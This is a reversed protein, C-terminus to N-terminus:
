SFKSSNQLMMQNMGTQPQMFSSMQMALSSLQSNGFQQQQMYAAPNMYQQQNQQQGSLTTIKGSSSALSSPVAVPGTGYIQNRSEQFLTNAQQYHPNHHSQQVMPGTRYSLKVVRENSSKKNDKLFKDKNLHSQVLDLFQENYLEPNGQKQNKQTLIKQALVKEM